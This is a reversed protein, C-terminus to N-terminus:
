AAQRRSARSGPISGDDIKHGKSRLPALCSARSRAESQLATCACAPQRPAYIIGVSERAEGLKDVVVEGCVKEKVVLVAEM